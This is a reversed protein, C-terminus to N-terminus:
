FIVLSVDYDYEGNILPIIKYEENVVTSIDENEFSIHYVTDGSVKVDITKTHYGHNSKVTITANGAGVAILNGKSDVNVVDKDSTEYAYANKDNVGNKSLLFITYESGSLMNVDKKPLYFDYKEQYFYFGFGIGFVVLLIYFIIAFTSTEKSEGKM